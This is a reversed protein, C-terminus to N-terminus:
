VVVDFVGIEIELDGVVDFFSIYGLLFCYYNEIFLPEATLVM